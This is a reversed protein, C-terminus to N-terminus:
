GGTLGGPTLVLRATGRVPVGAADVLPFSTSEITASRVAWTSGPPLGREWRALLRAQLPRWWRHVALPGAPPLPVAQHPMTGHREATRYGNHAFELAFLNPVGAANLLPSLRLVRGRVAVEDGYLWAEAVQEGAPDRFVVRYAPLVEDRPPENAAAWRVREGRSEGTREVLLVPVDTTLALFGARMLTLSALLLLALVLALRALGATPRFRWARGRASWVLPLLLVLAVAGAALLAPGTWRVVPATFVAYISAAGLLLAAGGLRAVTVLPSFPRGTAARVLASVGLALLATLVGVAVVEQLRWLLGALTTMPAVAVVM